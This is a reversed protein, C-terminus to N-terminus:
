SKRQSQGRRGRFRQEPSNPGSRSLPGAADHIHYVRVTCVVSFDFTGRGGAWEATRYVIRGLLPEAATAPLALALLLALIPRYM